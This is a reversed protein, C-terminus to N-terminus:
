KMCTSTAFNPEMKSIQPFFLKKQKGKKKKKLIFAFSPSFSFSVPYFQPSFFPLFTSLISAQFASKLESCKEDRIKESPNFHCTVAGKVRRFRWSGMQGGQRQPYKPSSKNQHCIHYTKTSECFTSYFYFTSVLVVLIEPNKVTLSIWCFDRQPNTTQENSALIDCALRDLWVM